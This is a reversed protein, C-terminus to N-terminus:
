EPYDQNKKKLILLICLPNLKKKQELTLGKGKEGFYTQYQGSDQLDLYGMIEDVSMGLIPSLAEATFRRDEVYAYKGPREKSLVAYITYTDLNQAVVSGNRDFFRGRKAILTDTKIQSGEKEEIVNTMSRLHFGTLTTVFVNLAVLTVSLMVVGFIILIKLNANSRKKSGKKM